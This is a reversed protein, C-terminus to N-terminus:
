FARHKKYVQCSNHNRFQLCQTIECLIYNIFSVDSMGMFGEKAEVKVPLLLERICQWSVGMFFLHAPHWPWLVQCEWFGQRSSMGPTVSSTPSRDRGGVRRSEWPVRNKKISSLNNGEGVHNSKNWRYTPYYLLLLLKFVKIIFM